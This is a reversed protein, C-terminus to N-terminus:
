RRANTFFENRAGRGPLAPTGLGRVQDHPRESRFRGHGSSGRSRVVPGGNSSLRDRGEDRVPQRGRTRGDDQGRAETCRLLGQNAELQGALHDRRQVPEDVREDAFLRHQGGLDLARLRREDVQERELGLRAGRLAGRRVGVDLLHAVVEVREGVRAGLEGSGLTQRERHPEQVLRMSSEHAADAAGLLEGALHTAALVPDASASGAVGRVHRWWRVREALHEAGELLVQVGVVRQRRQYAGSEQVHLELGDVGVEVAVAADTAQEHREQELVPLQEGLREEVQAEEELSMALVVVTPEVRHSAEAVTLAPEVEEEVADRRDGVFGDGGCALQEREHGRIARAHERLFPHGDDRQPEELQQRAM